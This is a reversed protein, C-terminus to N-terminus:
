ASLHALPDGYFCYAAYTDQPSARDYARARIERLVDAFPRTPDKRTEAYFARAVEFALDDMVSWLPAIVAQAGLAIFKAAFGGIGVLSPTQRGIECANLFVVTGRRGLLAVFGELGTVQSSRFVRDDDLFIAQEMGQPEAGHCTFHLLTTSSAGLVSEITELIAPRIEMGPYHSIVLAVEAAAHKLHRSGEYHPAIVLSESLRIRQRGSTGNPDPWRGVAFEVGLAQRVDLGGGAKARAPVMLEWPIFPEESVIGITRPPTGREILHWLLDRFNPPAAEFFEQGAGILLSRLELATLGEGTFSAMHGRVFDDSRSHLTWEIFGLEDLADQWGSGAVFAQWEDVSLLRTSVRCRFHRFDKANTEHVEVLLDPLQTNTEVTIIGDDSPPSPGENPPDEGAPGDTDAPAADSLAIEVMREVKGCPRGDYRFRATLRGRSATDDGLRRLEAEPRVVLHFHAVTSKEHDRSITIGDAAASTRTFHESAFLTVELRIREVDEPVDPDIATSREGSRSAQRDAWVDVTLADDPRLPPRPSVDMHPNRRFSRAPTPDSSGTVGPSADPPSEGDTAAAPRGRRTARDALEDVHKPESPAALGPGLGPLEWDLLVVDPEALVFELPAEDIRRAASELADTLKGHHLAAIGERARAWVDTEVRRGAEIVRDLEEVPESLPVRIMSEAARRRLAATRVAVELDKAAAASGTPLASIARRLAREEPGPDLPPDAFDGPPESTRDLYGSLDRQRLALLRQLRKMTQAARAGDGRSLQQRLDRLLRQRLRFDLSWLNEAIAIAGFPAPNADTLARKLWVRSALIEGRQIGAIATEVAFEPTARFGAPLGAGFDDDSGRSTM